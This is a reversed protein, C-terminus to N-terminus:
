KCVAINQQNINRTYHNKIGELYREGFLEYMFKRYDNTLNEQQDKTGFSLSVKFDQFRCSCPSGNVSFCVNIFNVHNQVVFFDDINCNRDIKKAFKKVLAVTNEYSLKEIFM